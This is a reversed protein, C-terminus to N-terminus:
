GIGSDHTRPLCPGPWAPAVGVGSPSHPHEPASGQAQARQLSCGDWPAATGCQQGSVVSTFSVDRLSATTLWSPATRLPAARSLESLTEPGREASSPTKPFLHSPSSQPCCSHSGPFLTPTHDDGDESRRMTEEAAKFGLTQAVGKDAKSPGSVEM